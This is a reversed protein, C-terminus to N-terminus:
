EDPISTDYYSSGALWSSLMHAAGVTTTKSHREFDVSSTSIGLM